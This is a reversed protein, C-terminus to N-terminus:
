VPVYSLDKLLYKLVNACVVNFVFPECFATAAILVENVFLGQIM